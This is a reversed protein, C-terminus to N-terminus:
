LSSTHPKLKPLFRLRLALNSWTTLQQWGDWPLSLLGWTGLFDATRPPKGGTHSPCGLSLWTPDESHCICSCMECGKLMRLFYQYFSMLLSHNPRPQVMSLLHMQLCASKRFQAPASLAAECPPLPQNGPLPAWCWGLGVPWTRILEEPHLNVTPCRLEAWVTLLCMVEQTCRVCTYVGLTFSHGQFSFPPIQQLRGLEWSTNKDEPQKLRLRLGM